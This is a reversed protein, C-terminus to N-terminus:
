RWDPLRNGGRRRQNYLDVLAAAVGQSTSGKHRLRRGRADGILGRAGGPFSALRMVLDDLAVDRHRRLFAGLGNLIAMNVADPHHGWAATVVSLVEDLVQRSETDGDGYIRFLASVASISKSGPGVEWGHNRVTRQIGVAIPEGETLRAHFLQMPTVKRASNLARFLAAEQALSLGEHVVCLAPFDDGKVRQALAARHQGDLIVFTDDKRLSVVLAGMAEPSFTEARKSIWGEDVPRTNVRPDTTLEGVPIHTTPEASAILHEIPDHHQRTM